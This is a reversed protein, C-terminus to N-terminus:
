RGDLAEAFSQLYRAGDAGDAVRHDVTLGVEATLTARLSGDAAATPRHRITGISLILPQPPFLLANFRDVGLGGLNSLTVSAQAMDDPRIKGTRTRDVLARVARDAEDVPPVDPDAISTVVLGSGPRDVALGIRVTDFAVTAESDTDWRANLEPHERMAVALARVLLTTWSSGARATAASEVDVTRYLTFQPIAASRNMVDATAKRIAARKADSAPSPETRPSPQSAPAPQTPPAERPAPEPAREGDAHARVDAPTVQGRRGTPTIDALDIGLERAMKRAPPSAAVIGTPVAREIEGADATAPGSPEPEGSEPESSEPADADGGLTLGGLLDDAETEVTALHGGLPVEDGASAVLTVITGDFPAELDMDVKDTSVSAIAQGEKITDGPSVNWELLVASEMTASLAPLRIERKSM